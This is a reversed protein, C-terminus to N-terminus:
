ALLNRAAVLNGWQRRYWRAAEPYGVAALAREVAAGIVDDPMTEYDQMQLGERVAVLIADCIWRETGTAELTSRVVAEVMGLRDGSRRVVGGEVAPSHIMFSRKLQPPNNAGSIGPWDRSNRLAV